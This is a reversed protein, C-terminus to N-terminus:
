LFSLVEKYPTLASRVKSIIFLRPEDMWLLETKMNGGKVDDGERM